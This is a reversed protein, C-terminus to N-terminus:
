KGGTFYVAKAEPATKAMFSVASNYLSQPTACNGESSGFQRASTPTSRNAVVCGAGMRPCAAGTECFCSVADSLPTYYPDVHVDTVHWTKFTGSSSCLLSLLVPSAWSSLMIELQM